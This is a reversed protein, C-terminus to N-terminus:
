NPISCTIHHHIKEYISLWATQERATLVGTVITLRAVIDARIRAVLARGKATIEVFVKRRDDSAHTRAVYGLNALRDVLGTAAATTHSMAESIATMSLPEGSAMHGLLFYQPFSVKGRALEESLHQVLCRQMVMIIDALRETEAPSLGPKRQAM